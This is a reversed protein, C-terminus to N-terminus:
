LEPNFSLNLEKGGLFTTLQEAKSKMLTQERKNLHRLPAISLRLQSGRLSARWTAAARGQLLVVAEVQAAPRYVRRLNEEGIFRAKDSYGMLLPDFKPLLCVAAPVENDARLLPEDQCRIYYTGRWEAIDTMMLDPACGDFIAKVTKMKLGSWHAFDQMTAPGYAALYRLLLERRAEEESPLQWSLESLWINRRAFRTENGDSDALVLEGVFALGKVDLGWSAGEISALKPVARHLESRSLPRQGLARLIAKNLKQIEQREVGRRTKMFYGYESVQQQGIAQVMMALDASPLVHITGRLCWTKILVKTEFLAHNVWAQSLSANRAWLAIPISASYQAQIAVVRRMTELPQEVPQALHQQRLTFAIAQQQTPEFHNKKSVINM